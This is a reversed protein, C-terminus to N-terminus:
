WGRDLIQHIHPIICGPSYINPWQEADDM